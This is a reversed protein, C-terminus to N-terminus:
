KLDRGVLEDLTVGYFDALTICNQINPVNTGNEYASITTQLIGTEKALAVQSLHNLERYYKLNEAITNIM